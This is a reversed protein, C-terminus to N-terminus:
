PVVEPLPRRGRLGWWWVAAALVVEVGTTVWFATRSAQLVGSSALTVDTCAHFLACVIVSGRGLHCLWSVVVSTAVTLLAFGAFPLTSQFSGRQAFLPVHWLAWVLGLVVAATGPDLRLELRPLVVGRWVAEETFWFMVLDLLLLLPLQGAAVGSRAADFPIRLVLAVGVPPLVALGIAAAYVPLGVRWHLMRRVQGRLGGSTATAVLWAVPLVLWFSLGQPLHWSLRGHEQLVLSGWVIWAGAFAILVCVVVTRVPRNRLATDAM